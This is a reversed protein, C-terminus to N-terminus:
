RGPGRPQAPASNAPATHAPTSSAPATSVPAAHAPTPQAPTPQAHQAHQAHTPHATHATHTPESQAPAKQAAVHRHLLRDVMSDVMEDGRRASERATERAEAMIGRSQGQVIKRVQDPQDDLRDLVVPLAEDILPGVQRSAVEQVLRSVDPNAAIASTASRTLEHIRHEARSRQPAGVQALTRLTWASLDTLAHVAPVRSALKAPPALRRGARLVARAPGAALRSALFGAGLGADILSVGPRRPFRDPGLAPGAPPEAAPGSDLASDPAESGTPLDGFRGSHLDAGELGLSNLGVGDPGAGDLGASEFGASDSLEEDYM